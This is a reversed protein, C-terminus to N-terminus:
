NQPIIITFTTGIDIESSVEIKGRHGEIIKKVISLGLGTGQAHKESGPVRYFKEFLSETHEPLMGRGTDQVFFSIEEKNASAGITISGHPRNYKIANSVLNIAVQKIKDPDGGFEPIDDQIKLIIDIGQEKAQSEMIATVEELILPLNVPEVKFQSRGSELRALDLFSSAMESLRNTEKQITQAMQARQEESIEPRMLLHSATNISALPTRLEHVMEAILDSQQFLRSNVIAIAAQSGLMILLDQDDTSFDGDIKNIVELVGVVKDNAILPVGLLSETRYEIKEGVENFHGPHDKTSLVIVPQRTTAIEGAISGEVPVILGRMNLSEINTSSQFYLENKSEDYLLISAASADTVDAAANVIKNLLVELDLISSLVQGIEILRLYKTLTSNPQTNTKSSNM